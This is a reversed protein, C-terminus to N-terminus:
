RKYRRVALDIIDSPYIENKFVTNNIHGCCPCVSRGRVVATYEQRDSSPIGFATIQENSLHVTSYNEEKCAECKIKLEM